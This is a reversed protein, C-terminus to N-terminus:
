DKALGQMWTQAVNPYAQGEPDICAQWKLGCALCGYDLFTGNQIESRELRSGCLPCDTILTSRENWEM